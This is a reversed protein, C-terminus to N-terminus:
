QTSTVEKLFEEEVIERLEGHGDALSKKNKASANKLAQLRAQRIQEMEPDEMRMDVKEAEAAAKAHAEVKENAKDAKAQLPLARRAFSLQADVRAPIKEERM